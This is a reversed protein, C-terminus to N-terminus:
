GSPDAPSCFSFEYNTLNIIFNLVSTFMSLGVNLMRGRSRISNTPEQKGVVYASAKQLILEAGHHIGIAYHIIGYTHEMGDLAKYFVGALRRINPSRGKIFTLSPDADESEARVM